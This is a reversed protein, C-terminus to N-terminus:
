YKFQSHLNTITGFVSQLGLSLKERSAQVGRLGQPQDRESWGEKVVGAGRERDGGVERDKELDGRARERDRWTERNQCVTLYVSVSMSVPLCAPSCVSLCSSLWVSIYPSSSSNLKTYRWLCSLALYTFVTGSVSSRRYISFTLKYDYLIGTCSCVSM